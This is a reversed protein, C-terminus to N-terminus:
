LGQCHEFLVLNLPANGNKKKGNSCDGNSDIDWIVFPESGGSVFAFVLGKAASHNIVTAGNKLIEGHILSIM